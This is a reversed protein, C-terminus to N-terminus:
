GIAFKSPQDVGRIIVVMCNGDARPGYNFSCLDKVFHANKDKSNSAVKKRRHPSAHYCEFDSGINCCKLSGARSCKLLIGSNM